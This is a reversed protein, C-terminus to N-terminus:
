RKRILKKKDYECITSDLDRDGLFNVVYDYFGNKDNHFDKNDKKWKRYLNNLFRRYLKGDGDKISPNVSKIFVYDFNNKNIVYEPIPVGVAFNKYPYFNVYDMEEILCDPIDCELIMQGYYPLYMRAHQGYKFFHIKDYDPKGISKDGNAIKKFEEDTIVRYMVM